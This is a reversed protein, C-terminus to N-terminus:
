SETALANHPLASGSSHHDHRPTRPARLLCMAIFAVEIGGWLVVYLAIHQHQTLERSGDWTSQFLRHCANCRQQYGAIVVSPPDPLMTRRPGIALAVRDFESTAASPTSTGASTFWLVIALVIFGIALMWGTSAGAHTARSSESRPTSTRSMTYKRVRKDLIIGLALM